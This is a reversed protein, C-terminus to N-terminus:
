CAYNSCELFPVSWKKWGLPRCYEIRFVKKRHHLFTFKLFVCGVHTSVKGAPFLQMLPNCVLIFHRQHLIHFNVHSLLSSKQLGHHATLLLDFFLLSEFVFIDWALFICDFRILSVIWSDFSFKSLVNSSSPSNQKQTETSLTLVSSVAM